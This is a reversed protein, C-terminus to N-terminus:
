KLAYHFIFSLSFLMGHCFCEDLLHTYVNIDKTNPVINIFVHIQKLQFKNMTKTKILLFCLVYLKYSITIQNLLFLMQFSSKKHLVLTPMRNILFVAIAFAGVSLYHPVYAHFSLTLGPEVHTSTKM